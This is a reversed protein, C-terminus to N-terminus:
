FTRSYFKRKERKKNEPSTNKKLKTCKYGKHSCDKKCHLCEQCFFCLGLTYKRKKSSSM